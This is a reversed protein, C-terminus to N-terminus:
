GRQRRYRRRLVAYAWIPLILQYKLVFMVIGARISGRFITRAIVDRYYGLGIHARIDQRILKYGEPRDFQSVIINFLLHVTRRDMQLEFDHASMDLKEKLHDAITIPDEWPFVTGGKTTSNVNYCYHYLCEEMCYMSKASYVCAIVCALDEGTQVQVDNLMNKLFLERRFIHSALSASHHKLDEGLILYPFIEQEIKEKNYYGAEELPFNQSIRGSTHERLMGFQIIDVDGYASVKELCREEIWDDADVFYLYEGSAAYAGDQRALSVGQNKKHIVAIRADKEAYDDCIKPCGDSSGDDVLILEFDQCTQNIISRICRELYKDMNYIPVIISFKPM